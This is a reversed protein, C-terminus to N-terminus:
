SEKRTYCTTFGLIKVSIGHQRHLENISLLNSSFKPSYAVNSHLVTYPKGTSDSMQLRITGTCVVDVVDGNAVRVRKRPQADDITEFLDIRNTVSLTCGSDATWSSKKHKATRGNAITFAVPKPRRPRTADTVERPKPPRRKRVLSSDYALYTTTPQPAIAHLVNTQIMVLLWFCSFIKVSISLRLKNPDISWPIM